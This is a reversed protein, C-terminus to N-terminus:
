LRLFSAVPSLVKVMPPEATDKNRQTTTFADQKNKAINSVKSMWGKMQIRSMDAM